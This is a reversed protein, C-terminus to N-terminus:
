FSWIQLNNIIFVKTMFLKLTENLYKTLFVLNIFWLCKAM